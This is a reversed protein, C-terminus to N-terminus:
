PKTPQTRAERVKISNGNLTSGDLSAIAAEAAGDTEIEVFGFGKPKGTDKETAIKARTIPGHEGFHARLQEVTTDDTLNGIYLRKGM